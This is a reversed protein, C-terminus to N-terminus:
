LYPSFLRFFSNRLNGAWSISALGKLTVERSRSIKQELLKNMTRALHADYREPLLIIEKDALRIRAQRRLRNIGFLWYLGLGLLPSFWILGVWGTAAKTDRKHLIVHAATWIMAAITIATIIHPWFIQVANVISTM